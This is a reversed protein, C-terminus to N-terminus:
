WPLFAHIDKGTDTVVVSVQDSLTHRTGFGVLKEVDSKLRAESIGSAPEEAAALPAACVLAAALLLRTHM